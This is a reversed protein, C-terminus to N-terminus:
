KGNAKKRKTALDREAKTKQGHCGTCLVQLNEKDCFMREIVTNWDIFGVEPDIIAKIHDVQVDKAPYSGLCLACQYHEAQRGSKPNVRKGRKAEALVEYRPPWRRSAARLGSKIFSQRRAITWEKKVSDM